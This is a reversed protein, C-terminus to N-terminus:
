EVIGYRTKFGLVLQVKGDVIKRLVKDESVDQFTM